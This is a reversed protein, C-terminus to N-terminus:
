NVTDGTVEKQVETKELKEADVKSSQKTGIAREPVDLYCIL